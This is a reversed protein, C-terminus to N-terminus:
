RQRGHRTAPSLPRIHNGTRVIARIWSRAYKPLWGACSLQRRKGRPFPELYGPM